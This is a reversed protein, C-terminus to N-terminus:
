LEQFLKIVLSSHILPSHMKEKANATTVYFNRIRAKKNYKTNVPVTEVLSFILDSTESVEQLLTESFREVEAVLVVLALM